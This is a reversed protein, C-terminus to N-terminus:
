AWTYAMASIFEWTTSEKIKILLINNEYIAGAEDSSILAWIVDDLDDMHVVWSRNTGRNFRRM